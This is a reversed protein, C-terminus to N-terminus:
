EPTLTETGEVTSEWRRYGELSGDAQLSYIMTVDQIGREWLLSLVYGDFNGNATGSEGGIQWEMRYDNGRTRILRVTGSYPAGAADTGSILYTGSIDQAPTPTPMPNRAGCALGSLIILLAAM